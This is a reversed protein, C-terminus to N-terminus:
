KESIITKIKDAMKSGLRRFDEPKGNIILEETNNCELGELLNILCERHHDGMPIIKTNRIKNIFENFTIWDANEYDETCLDIQCSENFCVCNWKGSPFSFRHKPFVPVEFADAYTKLLRWQEISINKVADYISLTNNM